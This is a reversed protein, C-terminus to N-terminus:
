RDSAKLFENVVENVVIVPAIILPMEVVM